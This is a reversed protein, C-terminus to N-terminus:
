EEPEATYPIDKFRFLAFNVTSLDPSLHLASIALNAGYAWFLRSM